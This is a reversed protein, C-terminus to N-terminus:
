SRYIYSDSKTQTEPCSSLFENLFRQCSDCAAVMNKNSWAGRLMSKTKENTCIKFVPNFHICVNTQFFDEDM